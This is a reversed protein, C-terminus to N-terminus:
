NSYKPDVNKGSYKEYAQRAGDTIKEEQERSLNLGAKKAVFDFAKDGYDQQQDGGQQNQTNNNSSSNGGQNQQNDGGQQQQQQNNNNDNNSNGGAGQASNVAQKLFDM